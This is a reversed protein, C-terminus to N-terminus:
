ATECWPCRAGAPPRRDSGLIDGVTGLFEGFRQDNREVPLWTSTAGYVFGGRSRTMSTPEVCLLGLTTVPSLLASTFDPEELMWSYAHVQRSYSGLHGDKPSTTKFDVVGYTDDDFHILADTSGRFRVMVGASGAELPKAWKALRDLPMNCPTVENWSSAVAVQAKAFDEDHMGIARLMARAPAREFGDTVERSRHKMANSEGATAM